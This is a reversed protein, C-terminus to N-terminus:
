GYQLIMGTLGCEIKGAGEICRSSSPPMVVGVIGERYFREFPYRRVISRGEVLRMTQQSVKACIECSIYKLQMVVKVTNQSAKRDGQEKVAGAEYLLNRAARLESSLAGIESQYIEDHSLPEPNPEYRTNKM